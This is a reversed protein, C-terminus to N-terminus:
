ARAKIKQNSHQTHDKKRFEDLSKVGESLRFTMRQSVLEWMIREAEHTPPLELGLAEAFVARYLDFVAKIPEGREAASNPLQSWGFWALLASIVPIFSWRLAMWLENPHSSQVAVVVMMVYVVLSVSGAILANLDFQFLSEGERIRSRAEEPIIMFIRPWLVIAEMGYVVDPYREYARMVNGVRTPLVDEINRPYSNVANWLRVRFDDEQDPEVGGIRGAQIIQDMKDFLPDIRKEFEQKRRLLFVNFPNGRGYGEVLRIVPRNLAMLLISVFWIIVVSLAAGFVSQHAIIIAWMASNVYDFATLTGVVGAFMLSAPLFFGIFFSRDFLKPLQGFM